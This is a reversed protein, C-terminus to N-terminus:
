HPTTSNSERSGLNGLLTVEPNDFQVCYVMSPKCEEVIEGHLDTRRFVVQAVSNAGIQDFYRPVSRFYITANSEPQPLQRLGAVFNKNEETLSRVWIMMPQTWQKQFNYHTYGLALFLIAAVTEVIWPVSKFRLREAAQKITVAILGGIGFSPIYWYYPLRRNVLVIVPIFSVFVYLFFFLGARSRTLFLSGIVLGWILLWDGPNFQVRFLSNFYWAFSGPMDLLSHDVYYPHTPSALSYPVLGGMVPVKLLLYGFAMAFPVTLRKVIQRLQPTIIEWNGDSFRPWGAFVPDKRVILDYALWLIPLTVAMEKTKLAFYFIVYCWLLGKLSTGIRVYVGLGIWMFTACLLEGLCAFNFFIERFAIQYSFLLAAVAAGFRSGTLQKLVLYVLAVNFALLLWKFWHYPWPNLGFLNWNVWYALMYVPRFYDSFPNLIHGLMSWFTQQQVLFMCNFDD